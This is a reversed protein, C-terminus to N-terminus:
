CNISQDALLERSAELVQEPAINSMCRANECRRKKCPRCPLDIEVIRRPGFYPGYVRPDKPGFMGVVPIGVASALHMPGSDCGIFLRCQKYLEALEVLSKTEPGVVAGTTESAILEAADREGPGWTLVVEVGFESVLMPILRVYNERPWQKYEGFRSTGIHIAALWLGGLGREELCEVIRRKASEDTPIVPAPVTGACIDLGKLLHLRQEVRHMTEPPLTVPRNIFLSNFERSAGRGFGIRVSAGSMWTVLGSRLNGQFDIAVDFRGAGLQKRSALLGKVVRGLDRLRSYSKRRPMVIVHDLLPHDSLLSAAAPEIVWTILAQPLAERLATLAPLTCIVDGMAGLRVILVRLDPKQNVDTLIM